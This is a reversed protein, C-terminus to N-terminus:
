NNQIPVLVIKGDELTIYKETTEVGNIDDCLQHLENLLEVDTMIKYRGKM